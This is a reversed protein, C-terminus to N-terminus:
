LVSLQFLYYVEGMVHNRHCDANPIACVFRREAVVSQVDEEVARHINKSM